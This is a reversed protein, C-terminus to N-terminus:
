PRMTQSLSAWADLVEVAFEGEGLDSMFLAMFQDNDRLQQKFEILKPKICDRLGRDSGLTSTYVVETAAILDPIDADRINELALSFKAAALDKLLGVGYKDAIAYVCAHAMLTSKGNDDIHYDHAYFFRLLIGAYQPDEDKLEISGLCGEKWKDTNNQDPYQVGELCVEFKGSCANKFYESGSRLILRHLQRGMRSTLMKQQSYPKLQM